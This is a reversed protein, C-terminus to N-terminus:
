TITGYSMRGLLESTSKVGFKRLLRARVDEITRPSLGKERGIEKSTQGRSLGSLVERERKTLQVGDLQDRIQSFSMVLHALPDNPTLTRASFRCWIRVGDKRQMMREDNYISHEEMARLGINRVRDFEAHSPYLISFSQGLLDSRAYGLMEAFSTNCVTLVRHSSVAIGIPAADFAQEILNLDGDM